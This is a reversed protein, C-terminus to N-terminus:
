ASNSKMWPTAWGVPKSVGGVDALLVADYRSETTWGKASRMGNSLNRLDLLASCRVYKLVGNWRLSNIGKDLPTRIIPLSSDREYAAFPM